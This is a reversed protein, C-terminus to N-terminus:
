SERKEEVPKVSDKEIPKIEEKVAEELPTEEPTHTNVAAMGDAPSTENHRAPEYIKEKMIDTTFFLHWTLVRM